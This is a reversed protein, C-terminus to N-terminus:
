EKEERLLPHKRDRESREAIELPWEIGIAPDDARIGREAEAMYPASHVYLMEVNDTLTQFGHAFGPPILLSLANEDSLRVGHWQWRTPSGSRLDIAVDLVEGKLCTVLKAEEHPPRQFHMGRVAGKRVTLTRNMQAVPWPWGVQKLEDACFLRELWGREDGMRLRRLCLLGQLPTEIPEFRATVSTGKCM